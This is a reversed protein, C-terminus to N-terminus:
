GGKHSMLSFMRDTPSPRDKLRRKAFYKEGKEGFDDLLFFNKLVSGSTRKGKETNQEPPLTTERKCRM